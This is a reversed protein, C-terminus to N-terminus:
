ATQKYVQTEPHFKSWAFWYFGRPNIRDIRGNSEKQTGNFNWLRGQSDKLGNEELTFELTRNRYERVYVAITGDDPKEVVLIPKGAFSDHLIDEQRVIREQYAKAENELTIGLVLEKAPLRTDVEDVGFGVTDSRSYGAYPNSEYTSVPYIGTNRSLVRTDPHGKRWKGWETISSFKLELEEPVKPGIIAKGSIQNWYTETSRDYMVLNADLLKGSVGFELVEGDVKRSYAVGSRCLPCYTVAIPEGGIRDNVIEHKSLIKLPYARSDGNIEIGIVRDSDELWDTEEPDQFNPSDISPICDMSPCGQVLEDPHVTYKTGDATTKVQSSNLSEDQAGQRSGQQFMLLGSALGIALLAVLFIDKREM